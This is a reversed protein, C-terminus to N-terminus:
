YWTRRDKEDREDAYDDVLHVGLNDVVLRM